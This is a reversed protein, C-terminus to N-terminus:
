RNISLCFQQIRKVAKQLDSISAAFSLRFYGEALFAEGPVVAVQQKELLGQCWATSNPYKSNLLKSIGVFLYFAGHPTFVDLDKIQSLERILFDRREQYAQAMQIPSKTDAFASIAAQQIISSAGSTTQSQLNTMAEILQKPGCGWGLRWGTIAHSKSLGSVTLTRNKIDLSLSAISTHKRQDFLIKEYIEDSIIWFNHKIALEAIKILESRDITMGTPNCPYNLILVKTKPSIKPLIDEARLQFPPKLDILVPIGQTIKIQEIYTSWTPTHVIVEENPNVLSLLANHLVQKAGTGVIIEEPTYEIDNEQIYKQAIAQRLGVIGSVPTYHHHNEQVAKILAEKLIKPPQFDPEGATLNIIEQGESQMKKVTANLSLTPSPLFQSIRNAIM